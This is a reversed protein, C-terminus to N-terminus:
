FELEKFIKHGLAQFFVFFLRLLFLTDPYLDPGIIVFQDVLRGPLDHFGNLTVAGLNRAGHRQRRFKMFVRDVSRGKDMFIRPILIFHSHMLAQDINQTGVGFRNIRQCIQIHRGAHVNFNFHLKFSSLFNVPIKKMSIIKLYFDAFRSKSKTLFARALGPNKM